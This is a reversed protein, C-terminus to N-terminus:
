IGCRTRSESIRRFLRGQAAAPRSPLCLPNYLVGPFSRPAGSQRAPALITSRSSPSNQMVRLVEHAAAETDATPHNVIVHAGEGAIRVATAAGIGQSAGTVIAVKGLLRMTLVAAPRGPEVLPWQPSLPGAEPRPCSHRARPFRSRGGRRPTHSTFSQFSLAPVQLVRHGTTRRRPSTEIFVISRQGCFHRLRVVFAGLSGPWGPTPPDARGTPWGDPQGALTRRNPRFSQATVSTATASDAIPKIVDEAHASERARFQGSREVSLPSPL